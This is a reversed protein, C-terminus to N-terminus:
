EIKKFWEVVDDYDDYISYYGDADFSFLLIADPHTEIITRLGWVVVNNDGQAITIIHEGIRLKM